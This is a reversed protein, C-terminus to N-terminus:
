LKTIYKTNYIICYILTLTESCTSKVTCYICVQINMQAFQHNTCSNLISPTVTGPTPTFLVANGNPLAPVSVSNPMQPLLGSMLAPVPVLPTMAPAALIPTLVPMVSMASLNPMSGM